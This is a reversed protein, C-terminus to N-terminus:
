SWPAWDGELGVIITGREQITELLDDSGKASVAMTLVSALMFVALMVAIMRKM